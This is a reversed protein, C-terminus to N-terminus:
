CRHVSNVEEWARLSPHRLVALEFAHLEQLWVQFQALKLYQVVNELWPEPLHLKVQDMHAEEHSREGVALPSAHVLLSLFVLFRAGPPHISCNSLSKVTCELSPDRSGFSADAFHSLTMPPAKAELPLDRTAYSWMSARMLAATNVLRRIFIISPKAM